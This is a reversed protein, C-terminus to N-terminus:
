RPMLPIPMVTTCYCNPSLLRTPSSTPCPKILHSYFRYVWKSGNMRYCAVQPCQLLATELTATGSTVLAAQSHHVLAFTCDRVLPTAGGTAFQSYFEDDIGPAAAIVAQHSPHRLAADLMSPLNDRIAIIPKTSLSHAATFEDFSPFDAAAADIENVTPNGVYEIDYDHRRYFEQEFPLISYLRTIYRKIDNVRYEKWAWVKPSIFYFAPIGLCHAERAVKLNFSPYDVLILAHPREDALHKRATALFGMITRLHKAVEIFGMYAMDRYHVIPSRNAAAAMMDGGFFSFQAKPDAESLASILQAAHLDGSAEGAIIFYKM